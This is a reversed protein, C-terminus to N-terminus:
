EDFYVEEGTALALKYLARTRTRYFKAESINLKRYIEYNYHPEITLYALTILQRELFNLKKLGNVVRKIFKERYIGEDVNKIAANETSSQKVNSYNPMELTYNATIKPLYVDPVMLLCTRYERLLNEIAELTAKNDIGKLMAEM